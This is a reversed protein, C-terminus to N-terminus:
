KRRARACREQPRSPTTDKKKSFSGGPGAKISLLSKNKEVEAGLSFVRTSTDVCIHKTTDM